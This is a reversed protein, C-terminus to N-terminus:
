GPGGGYLWDFRGALLRPAAASALRLGLHAAGRLGPAGLHYLRANAASARRVRAVRDRRRAAYAALGAAPDGAADLAAALVVADELAMAAGQALFPTMAHCADGLLAVRGRTWTAPPAHHFVGWVFTEDVAALLETAEACWGAFAKRLEDPDAPATWVEEARRGRAEVAVLNVVSGGRLPYAVVHRGPGM